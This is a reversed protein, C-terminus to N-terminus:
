ANTRREKSHVPVLYKVLKFIAHTVFYCFYVFYRELTKQSITQIILIFTVRDKISTTNQLSMSRLTKNYPMNISHICGCKTIRSLQISHRLKIYVPTNFIPDSRKSIPAHFSNNFISLMKSDQSNPNFATTKHVPFQLISRVKQFTFCPDNNICTNDLPYIYVHWFVAHLIDLFSHFHLQETRTASSQSPTRVWPSSNRLVSFQQSNMTHIFSFGVLILQGLLGFFNRKSKRVFLQTSSGVHM